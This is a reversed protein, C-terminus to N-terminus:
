CLNIRVSRLTNGSVKLIEIQYNDLWLCCEAPPIAGLYEIILGSLTKPGLAPFQWGLLRQLHRLTISGDIIYSGDAQLTIDQSFHAMDTTFEGVVEELIDELTVLGQLDGYENVVFCSRRKMKQFHLIQSNLSTGEPIFYPAETINLLENMNLSNNLALNLVERVHVMGVLNDISDRYLPVRTHQIMELQEIIHGWSEELDIGVIEAKPVMIEEVSAQELDLLSVLMRNHESPILSNAEHVISRLEESSLVDKNVKDLKVGTLRLMGRAVWSILSVLPSFIFQLVGLLWSCMFAVQQPYLAALTKPTMEAFILVVFTLITTVIFVGTEGYLRQGILTGAMSAFINGLTNGILVVGLLREPHSLLKNVRMAQKNRQKVLHRLKYRNLSMVGIEAASFFASFLILAIVIIILVILPTQV